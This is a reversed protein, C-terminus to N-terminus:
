KLLYTVSHRSGPKKGHFFYLAVQRAKGSSTKTLLATDPTPNKPTAQTLYQNYGNNGQELPLSFGPGQLQGNKGITFKVKQGIGFKPVGTPIQFTQVTASGKSEFAQRDQVRFSFTQKAAFGGFRKGAPGAAHVPGILLSAYIALRVLTITKM